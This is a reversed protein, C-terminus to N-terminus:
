RSYLIESHTFISLCFHRFGVMAPWWPHTGVRAWVIEALSYPCDGEPEWNRGDGGGTSHRGRVVNQKTRSFVDLSRRVNGSGKLRALDKIMLNKELGLRDTDTETDTSTGKTPIVLLRPRTYENETDTNSMTSVGVVLDKVGEARVPTKAQSFIEVVNRKTKTTTPQTQPVISVEEKSIEVANRAPSNPIDNSQDLFSDEITLL